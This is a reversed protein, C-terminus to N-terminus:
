ANIEGLWIKEVFGRDKVANLQKVLGSVRLKELKEPLVSVLQEYLKTWDSETELRSYDLNLLNSKYKLKGKLGEITLKFPYEMPETAFKNKPTDMYNFDVPRACVVFAKTGTQHFKGSLGIIGVVWGNVERFASTTGQREYGAEELRYLFDPHNM